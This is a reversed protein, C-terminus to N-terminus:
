VVKSLLRRFKWLKRQAYLQSVSDESSEFGSPVYFLEQKNGANGTSVTGTDQTIYCKLHPTRWGM